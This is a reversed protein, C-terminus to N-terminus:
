LTKLFTEARKGERPVKKKERHAEGGQFPLAERQHYPFKKRHGVGWGGSKETTDQLGRKIATRKKEKKEDKSSIFSRANTEGV